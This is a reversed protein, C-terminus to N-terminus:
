GALEVILTMLRSWAMFRWVVAVVPFIKVRPTQAQRCNSGTRVRSSGPKDPNGFPLSYYKLSLRIPLKILSSPKREIGFVNELFGIQGQTTPQVYVDRMIFNTQWSKSLVSHTHQASKFHWCVLWCPIYSSRMCCGSTDGRTMKASEPNQAAVQKAEFILKM